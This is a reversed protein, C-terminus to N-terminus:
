FSLQLGLQCLRFFKNEETKSYYHLCEARLGVDNIGYDQDLAHISSRDLIKFSLFLGYSFYHSLKKQATTTKSFNKSYCLSRALGGEVFPQIFDFYASKGKLGLHWVSSYIGEDAKCLGYNKGTGLSRFLSMGAQLGPILIKKYAPSWLADMEPFYLSYKLFFVHLNDLLKKQRNKISVSFGSSLEHREVSSLPQFQVQGWSFPSVFCFLILYIKAKMLDTLELELGEISRSIQTKLKGFSKLLKFGM